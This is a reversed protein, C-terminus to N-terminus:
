LYAGSDLRSRVKRSWFDFLGVLILLAYLYTWVEGYHLNEFSAAIYYGLTPFGFFGLIASSRIACEFRYLTYSIIDNIALPLIGFTFIQPGSAGSGQLAKAVNRSSEDIIESYIKAFTGTYPLAIALIAAFENLGFMALLMVAWLLEHISRIFAALLRASTYCAPPIARFLLHRKRNSSGSPDSIWWSTSCLFGLLIGFPIAISMAAGAFKVTELCAKLAKLGISETGAPIGEGEYDMAPSLARSFFEIAISYNRGSSHTEPLLQGLEFAAFVVACFLLLLIGKLSGLGFSPFNKKRANGVRAEESMGLGM